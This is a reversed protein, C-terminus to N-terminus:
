KEGVREFYGGLVQAICLGGQALQCALERAVVQEALDERRETDSFLFSQFVPSPRPAASRYARAAQVSQQGLNGANSLSAFLVTSSRVLPAVRDSRSRGPTWSPRRCAAFRPRADVYHRRRALAERGRQALAHLARPPSRDARSPRQWANPASATSLCATSRAPRRRRAANAGERM